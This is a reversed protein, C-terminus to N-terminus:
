ITSFRAAVNMTQIEQFLLKCAYPLRIESFDTTNKCAKCLWINKEPNAATATMGCTKCIFLRYNDSCEMFREKAFQMCGHAWKCEVEMEGLRLGGDRARGEAPQRTLMVVPGNNSRSHVKDQVLHKLRQYYTPGIFIKTGDDRRLMYDHADKQGVVFNGDDASGVLQEIIDPDYSGMHIYDIIDKDSEVGLARFLVFLPIDHKIHHINVKIYHGYQNSKSSMKITTIKPVSFVNDQTSRIEATYSFTTAKTNLFVYTKNEAIRDQSIVIKENGNVIFYGGYDYPCEGMNCAHQTITNLVCYNSRVMIPLKGISMGNIRKTNAVYEKTELNYTNTQIEIDVYLTGAYTFNRSRADNPTMIKTSGDKEHIIPKSLAPNLINIKMFYQFNEIEPIYQHYIDISNFGNIIQELKQLVFDNYTNILHKVLFTNKNEEFYNDLVCWALENFSKM